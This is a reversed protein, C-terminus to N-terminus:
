DRVDTALSRTPDALSNLKFSIVVYTLSIGLYHGLLTQVTEIHLGVDGGAPDAVVSFEGSFSFMAPLAKLNKQPKDTATNRAIFDVHKSATSDNKTVDTTTNNDNSAAASRCLQMVVYMDHAKVYTSLLHHLDELLTEFTQYLPARELNDPKLQVTFPNLM